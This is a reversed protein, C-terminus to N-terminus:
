IASEQVTQRFRECTIADVALLEQVEVSVPFGSNRLAKIIEERIADKALKAEMAQENM